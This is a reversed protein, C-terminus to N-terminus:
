ESHVMFLVSTVAIRNAPRTNALVPEVTWAWCLRLGPLPPPPLELPLLELSPLLELPPLLLPLTATGRLPPLEGHPPPLTEDRGLSGVEDDEPPRRGVRTEPDLPTPPPVPLM